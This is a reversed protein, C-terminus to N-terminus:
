FPNLVDKRELEFGDVDVFFVWVIPDIIPRFMPKSAKKNAEEGEGFSLGSVDVKNETKKFYYNYGEGYVLIERDNINCVGKIKRYKEKSYWKLLDKELITM